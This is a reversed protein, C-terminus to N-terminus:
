ATRRSVILCYDDRIDPSEVFSKVDAVLSRVLEAPATAQRELFQELGPIGYLEQNHNLAETVGDTFFLVTDDVDLSTSEESYEADELIGIPLGAVEDGFAEVNGSARRIRPSIHGANVITLSHDATDLVALVLTVFRHGGCSRLTENNISTM